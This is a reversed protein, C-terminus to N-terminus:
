KDGYIEKYDEKTYLNYVDEGNSECEPDCSWQHNIYIENGCSNCPFHAEEGITSDSILDKGISSELINYNCYPCHHLTEETVILEGFTLRKGDESINSYTKVLYGGQSVPQKRSFDNM